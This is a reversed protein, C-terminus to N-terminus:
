SSSPQGRGIAATVGLLAMANVPHLAAIWPLAGRLSPLLVQVVVLVVLLVSLGLVRTPLRAVLGLILLLLIFLAVLYGVARHLEFTTAGFMGIGALYFQL